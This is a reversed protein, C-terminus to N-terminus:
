SATFKNVNILLKLKETEQQLEKIAEILLGVMNGYAVTLTGNETTYVAEPLVEQVEQAIVGTRRESGGDIRTFTYGGLRSVKALADPIPEIDKKINRDSYAVVDGSCTLVVTSGSASPNTIIIGPATALATASTAYAVASTTGGTIPTAVASSVSTLRGYTDYTIVPISTASGTTGATVGSTPLSTAPLTGTAQNVPVNTLSAGSGSFTTATVTSAAITNSGALVGYLTGVVSGGSVIGSTSILGSGASVSTATVSTGSITNSGALTGYLTGGSVVGSGASVSTATVSTGSITNSGALVGYLTGVVTGGSVIGSTSMLGSGASVSTATLAGCGLSGGFTSSGTGQGTTNGTIVVDGYNTITPM